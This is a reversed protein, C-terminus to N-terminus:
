SLIWQQNWKPHLNYRRCSAPKKQRFNCNYSASSFEFQCLITDVEYLWPEAYCPNEGAM